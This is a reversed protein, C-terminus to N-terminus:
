KKLDKKYLKDNKRVYTIKAPNDELYKIIDETKVYRLTYWKKTARSQATEIKIPIYLDKDKLIRSYAIKEKKSLDTKNYSQIMKM